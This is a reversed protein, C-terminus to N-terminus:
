QEPRMAAGSKRLRLVRVDICQYVPDLESSPVDEVTLSGMCAQLFAAEAQRNRGHALLIETRGDSVALLTAVLAPVADVIYM